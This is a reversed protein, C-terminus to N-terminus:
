ELQFGCIHGSMKKTKKIADVGNAVKEATCYKEVTIIFVNVCLGFQILWDLQRFISCASLFISVGFYIFVIIHHLEFYILM